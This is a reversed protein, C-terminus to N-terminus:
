EEFLSFQVDVVGNSALNWLVLTGGAPCWIGSQPLVWDRFAGVTAPLTARYMFPSPATPSTGWALATTTVSPVRGGDVTPVNAPTTPTVGKAAPRGFGFTSATAAAMSIGIVGLLRFGKSAGAIIELAAEGTTGSTTRVGVQFQRM